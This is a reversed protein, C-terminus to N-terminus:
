SRHILYWCKLQSRVGYGHPEDPRGPRGKARGIFIANAVHPPEVGLIKIFTHCAKYGRLSWPRGQSCIPRRVLRKPNLTVKATGVRWGAGRKNAAAM